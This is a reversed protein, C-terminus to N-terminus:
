ECVVAWLDSMVAGIYQITAIVRDYRLRTPGIVGIVGAAGGRHYRAAVVACERLTPSVNEDGIMVQVGGDSTVADAIEVLLRREEFTRLIGQAKESRAFEPQGLM